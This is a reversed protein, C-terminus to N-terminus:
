SAADEPPLPVVVRWGDDERVLHLAFNTGDELTCAAVATDEGTTELRVTAAAIGPPVDLIQLMEHPAFTRRGGVQDSARQAAAELHARAPAYALAAVQAEDADALAQVFRRAVREPEPRALHCAGAALSAALLAPRRM